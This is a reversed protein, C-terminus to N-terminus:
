STVETWEGYTVTRSVPRTAGPYQRHVRRADDECTHVETPDSVAEQDPDHWIVAWQREAPEPGRREAVLRVADAPLGSGALYRWEGDRYVEWYRADDDTADILGSLQDDNDALSASWYLVPPLKM